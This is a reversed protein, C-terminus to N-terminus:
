RSSQSRIGSASAPLSLCRPREGEAMWPTCVHTAADSFPLTGESLGDLEVVFVGVAAHRAAFEERSQRPEGAARGRRAEEQREELIAIRNCRCDGDVIGRQFRAPLVEIRRAAGDISIHRPRFRAVRLPRGDDHDM